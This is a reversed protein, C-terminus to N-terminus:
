RKSRLDDQEDEHIGNRCLQDLNQHKLGDRSVALKLRTSGGCLFVISTGTPPHAAMLNTASLGPLM